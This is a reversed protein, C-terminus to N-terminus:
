AGSPNLFDAMVSDAVLRGAPTLAIREGDVLLRGASHHRKIAEAFLAMADFGTSERFRRRRIGEILRLMLMATEGARRTPELREVDIATPEGALIRRAYEASEPVNRWRQGDLYSAAAPGVGMTPLNHWYRLNHLSRAGPRAYNSIEYQEFGAAPLQEMAMAYLAAELDEDM